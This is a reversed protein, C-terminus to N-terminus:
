KHSVNHAENAGDHIVAINYFFHIANSNCVIIKNIAALRRHRVTKNTGLGSLLAIIQIEINRMSMSQKVEEPVEELKTDATIAMRRNSERRPYVEEEEEVAGFRETGNIYLIMGTSHFVVYGQLLFSM